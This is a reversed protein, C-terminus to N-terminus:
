KKISSVRRLGLKPIPKPSPPPPPPPPKENMKQLIKNNENTLEILATQTESLRAIVEAVNKFLEFQNKALVTLTTIKGDIGDISRFSPIKSIESSSSSSHTSAQVTEPIEPAEIPSNNATTPIERSVSLSSQYM